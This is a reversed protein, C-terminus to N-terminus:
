NLFWGTRITFTSLPMGSSDRRISRAAAATLDNGRRYDATFALHHVVCLVSINLLDMEEVVSDVEGDNPIAFQRWNGIHGHVDM